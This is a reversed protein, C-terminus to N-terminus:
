GRNIREALRIQNNAFEDVWDEPRTHVYIEHRAPQIRWDGPRRTLVPPRELSVRHDHDPAFGQQGPPFAFSVLSDGVRSETFVRGCARIYDAQDAGTLGSPLQASLDITTVWGHRYAGCEVIACSVPRTHTSRPTIASYTDYSGVPLAPEARFM